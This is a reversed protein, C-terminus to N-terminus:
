SLDVDFGRQGLVEGLSTRVYAEDEVVLVRGRAPKKEPM